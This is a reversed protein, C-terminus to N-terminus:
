TGTSLIVFHIFRMAMWCLRLICGNHFTYADLVIFMHYCHDLVLQVQLVLSTVFQQRRNRVYREVSAFTMGQVILEIGSEVFEKLFGTRHMLIFPIHQQPLKSLIYPNTSSVEHGFTCSYLASVLLVTHDCTHLIRPQLSLTQGVKWCKLALSGGCNNTTCPPNDEYSSIFQQIPNWLLVFPLICHALNDDSLQSETGRQATQARDYCLPPSIIVSRPAASNSSCVHIHLLIFCSCFLVM